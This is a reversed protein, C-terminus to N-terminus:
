EPRITLAVIDNNWMGHVPRTPISSFAAVGQVWAIIRHHHPHRGDGLGITVTYDGPEVEPWTFSLTLRYAGVGMTDLVVDSGVSNQGFVANGVRDRMLYGMVPQDVDVGLRVAATLEVLDGPVCPVLDGQTRNSTGDQQVTRVTLGEIAFASPDSSTSPDIRRDEVEGLPEEVSAPSGGSATAAREGLHVATYAQVAALPDGDFIMNGKDLVICRDALKVAAALDHTVVIKTVDNLRNEIFEYCKQQFFVDGVALAEDVILIEPRAHVATAFALRVYMGSSYTRVPEDIFSGIDAFAEVEPEVERIQEPTLGLISANLRYNERGSFDPNFGAGLELLASIRGAVAVEGASPQLTGTIMELLTSKGSGNRGIIALTEGRRVAFSLDNVALVTFGFIKSSGRRSAVAQLVREHPRTFVQYEKSLNRVVIADLDASDSSM